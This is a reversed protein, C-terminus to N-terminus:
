LNQLRGGVCEATLAAPCTIAPPTTDVITVSTLCSGANGCADMAGFSVSTTGIPYSALGPGTTAVAGICADTASSALAVATSGGLCEATVPAPCTVSPGVTDNITLTAKAQAVNGSNDEATFTVESTGTAGGCAGPTVGKFDNGLSKLGSCQDAATTAQLWGNVANATNANCEITANAPAATFTPATDDTITITADCPTNYVGDSVVLHVACQKSIGSNATAVTVTPMSSSNSFTGPACTTTWTFTLPDNEPDSSGSADITVAVDGGNCSALINPTMINPAKITCSPARNARVIVTTCKTDTTGFSDTVKLCVSYVAGDAANAPITFVPQASTSDGFTGDNNLDWAFTISDGPDIDSSASGDLAVTGGPNGTYPGGPVATPAHNGIEVTTYATVTCSAANYPLPNQDPHDTVRVAVARHLTLPYALAPNPGVGDSPAGFVDHDDAGFLGDGDLDWEYTLPDNDPDSSATGDFHLATNVFGQYPGGAVAHPCHPPPKIVVNCTAMSTQPGGLALPNDDTVRLAVPHSAYTPFGGVLSAQAGTADTIFSGNYDWDWEYKVITRNLDPETSCSGDLSVTQNQDWSASCDCIVANPPITTVGKSLILVDWGTALANAGQANNGQTDSWTGAATQRRVLNTALGVQTQGPPTYYWDFSNATQHGANYDYEVIRLIDPDPKRMAKMVGYMAYSNGIGVNWAGGSGYNNLSWNRYLFGLAQQVEPHSTSNGRFYNSLMGAATKVHNVYPDNPTQYGWGGHQSDLATHRSNAMFYAAESRVFAPVIVAMNDEAAAIALTPWQNTSGDAGGQNANYWWGGRGYGVGDTQGYAFWDTMDQAIEKYTRGLMAYSANTGVLSQRSPAGSSAFAVGCIGNTYTDNSNPILMGLGNGNSDPNGYQQMSIALPASNVLLWNISRQVDEVYPDTAYDKNPKSGHLELADLGACTGASIGPWSGYPQAMGTGGDAYVGRSLHTHLWWLGDDIAMNIRVDMKAPDMNYPAAAPMPDTDEIKLPYVATAVTSPAASDRVSLTAIFLQGVGGSYAHTVSLNYPDAIATWATAASGDGFDWMYQNGGYRAIGKLRATAGTYTPHPISPNAPIWPVTIASMKCGVGSERACIGAVGDVGNCVGDGDDDRNAWAPECLNGIGNGNCDAQDANPTTPCNDVADDVGDRDTDAASAPAGTALLFVLVGLGALWRGMGARRTKM